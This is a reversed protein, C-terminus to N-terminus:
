SSVSESALQVAGLGLRDLMQRFRPHPHLSHFIPDVTINMATAYREDIAREIWDLAAEQEGLAAYILALELPPVLESNARRELRALAARADETRGSLAYAVPLDAPRGHQLSTPHTFAAVARDFRGMLLHCRGLYGRAVVWTEDMRLAHELQAIAEEYRGASYLTMGINGNISAALPEIALARRHVALAEDFRRQVMLQRGLFRHAVFGHPDLELSRAMSRAAAPLDFDFTFEIQSIVAWTEASQPDIELARLAVARARPFADLASRVLHSAQLIYCEALSSLALVYTPDREIAQKLDREAGVLNTPTPRTLASWGAVYFQHTTPDRAAEDELRVEAAFRYGRGAVTSVYRPAAPDDGLARRVASVAQNVSNDVVTAHPWVAELLAAREIVEGGHEVLYLLTDFAISSMATARGTAVSSLTRRRPDLRFDGFAYVLGPRRM